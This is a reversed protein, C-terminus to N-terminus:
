FIEDDKVCYMSHGWEFEMQRMKIARVESLLFWSSAVPIFRYFKQRKGRHGKHSHRGSALM